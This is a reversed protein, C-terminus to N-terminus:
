ILQLEEWRLSNQSNKQLNLKAPLVQLNSPIHLGGKSIPIIHDVHFQLGFRKELRIRQLYITEIILKQNHTLDPTNNKEAARRKSNGKATILKYKDPNEKIWNELNEKYKTPNKKRWLKSTERGKERYRDINKLRSVRSQERITIRNKAYRDRVYERHTNANKSYYKALRESEQKKKGEFKEKSLWYEGDKCSSAYKWFVKGDERVDGRKHKETTEM